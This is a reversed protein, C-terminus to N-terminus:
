DMNAWLQGNETDNSFDDRCGHFGLGGGYEVWIVPEKKALIKPKIAKLFRIHLRQLIFYFYPLYYCM